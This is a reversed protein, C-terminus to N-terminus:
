AFHHVLEYLQDIEDRGRQKNKGQFPHAVRGRRATAYKGPDAAFKARCNASCFYFTRGGHEARHPTTHPDVSMGCVPDQAMGPSAADAPAHHRHRSSHGQHSAAAGM